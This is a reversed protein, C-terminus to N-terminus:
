EASEKFVSWVMVGAVVSLGLCALGYMIFLGSGSGSRVIVYFNRDSMRSTASVLIIFVAVVYTGGIAALKAFKTM